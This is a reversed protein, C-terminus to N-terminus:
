VIINLCNSQYSIMSIIVKGLFTNCNRNIISRSALSIIYKTADTQGDTRRPSWVLGLFNIAVCSVAGSNKYLGILSAVYEKLIKMGM